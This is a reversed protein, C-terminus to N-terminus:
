SMEGTVVAGEDGYAQYAVAVLRRSISQDAAGARLAPVLAGKEVNRMVTRLRSSSPESTTAMVEGNFIIGNCLSSILLAQFVASM